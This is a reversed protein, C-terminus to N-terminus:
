LIGGREGSLTRSDLYHLIADVSARAANLRTGSLRAYVVDALGDRPIGSHLLDAVQEIRRRRDALRRQLYSRPTRVSPGHGPLLTWDDDVLAALRGMSALIDAVTGDPHSIFPNLRALVTDGTLMLRDHPLAFSVGDATHGPTRFARLSTRGGLQFSTRDTILGRQVRPNITARWRQAVEGAAQSHDGHHHTLLVDTIRVGCDRVLSDIGDLHGPDDPGPDILAAGDSGVVLWTNTGEFTWDNANPALLLFVGPAVELPEDPVPPRDDLDWM